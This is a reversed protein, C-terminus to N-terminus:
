EGGVLDAYADAFSRIGVERYPLNINGYAQALARIKERPVSYAVNAMPVPSKPTLQPLEFGERSAIERLAVPRAKQEEIRAEDPSSKRENTYAIWGKTVERMLPRARKFVLSSADISRKTTTLPLAQANQSSFVILGLFGGYQPHWKPWGDTGWGTLVTKDAAVVIRGNCVVYWGDRDERFIESPSDPDEAPLVSMGAIVEVKVEGDPTEETYEKRMPNFKDGALLQIEWGKVVVGNLSINLGRALHFAYDRAIVRRLNQIFGPSAFASAAGASLTSVCIAVGPEEMHSASEIDFDWNGDGKALWDDVSIPVRFSGLVGESDFYTSAIEIKKGIKFIARKMGIGYVGISYDGVKDSAKRGFTFAYEAADDLSIGGCNDRIEFKEDTAVIDIRYRSLDADSAFSLVPGGVQAWAGDVCNDILDLICDELAIDRTIMRVFFSKTPNAAARSIIGM